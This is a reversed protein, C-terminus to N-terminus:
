IGSTLTFIRSPNKGLGEIARRVPNVFAITILASITPQWVHLLMTYWLTHNGIQNFVMYFTVYLPLIGTLIPFITQLILALTLRRQGRRTRETFSSANRKLFVFIKASCYVMSGLSTFILFNLFLTEGIIYTVDADTSSLFYANTFIEEGTEAMEFRPHRCTPSYSNVSWYVQTMCFMTAFLSAGVLVFRNRLITVRKPLCIIIYRCIFMVPQLIFFANFTVIYLVYSLRSLVSPGLTTVGTIIILFGGNYYDFGMTTVGSAFAYCIDLASLAVLLGRFHRLSNQNLRCTCFIILGNLILATICAVAGNVYRFIMFNKNFQYVDVTGNRYHSIMM